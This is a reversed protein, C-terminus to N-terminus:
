DIVGLFCKPVKDLTLKIRQHGAGHRIAIQGTFMSYGIDPDSHGRRVGEVKGHPNAPIPGFQHPYEVLRKTRYGIGLTVGDDIMPEIDM